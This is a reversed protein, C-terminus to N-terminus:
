GLRTIQKREERANQCSSQRPARENQNYKGEKEAQTDSENRQTGEGPRMGDPIPEDSEFLRMGDHDGSQCAFVSIVNVCIDGEHGAGSM